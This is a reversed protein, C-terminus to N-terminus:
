LWHICVQVWQGDCKWALPNYTMMCISNSNMNMQEYYFTFNVWTSTPQLNQHVNVNIDLDHSFLEINVGSGLILLIHQKLTFVCDFSSLAGFYINKELSQVHCTDNKHQNIVKFKTNQIGWKINCKLYLYM